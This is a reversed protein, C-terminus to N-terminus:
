RVDFTVTYLFTSDSGAYFSLVYKGASLGTTKLNYNYGGLNSDYRFSYDPNSHGADNVVSATAAGIRRLGRVSLPLAAASINQDTSNRIRVKVPVTSGSKFAKSRDFLPEVKKGVTALYFPSFSTTTTCIKRNPFDHASTRDVLTGGENHLVRLALFESEVNVNSVTFCSTVEGTFSATTTIEFAINALAFGGPVDGATAPDIATVTTTGGTTVEDFTFDAQGVSVTANQGVPTQFTTNLRIKVGSNSFSAIDPKGDGNFDTIVTESLDGDAIDIPLSFLRTGSGLALLNASLVDLKGDFNVDAASPNLFRTLHFPRPEPCTFRSWWVLYSGPDSVDDDFLDFENTVLEDAGDSDFDAAVAGSIDWGDQYIEECTAYILRSDFGGDWTRLDLATLGGVGDGFVVDSHDMHNFGVVDLNGDNNFDGLEPPAAGYIDGPTYTEVEASLAFHGTGDNKFVRYFSLGQFVVAVIDPSGDNNMDGIALKSKSGGHPIVTPPDSMESPQLFTGDGNGFLIYFYGHSFGGGVVVDLSGDSNLDGTTFYSTDHDFPTRVPPSFGNQNGMLVIIEAPSVRGAVLDPRGDSNVDAVSLSRIDEGSLYSQASSFTPIQGFQGFAASASLVFLSLLVVRCLQSKM